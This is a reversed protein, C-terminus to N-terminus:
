LMLWPMNGFMLNVTHVESRGFNNL